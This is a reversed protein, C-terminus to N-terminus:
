VKLLIITSLEFKPDSHIELPWKKCVWAYILGKKIIDVDKHQELDICSSCACYFGPNVAAKYEQWEFVQAVPDSQWGYNGRILSMIQNTKKVIGYSQHTLHFNNSPQPSPFEEGLCALEKFKQRPFAQHLFHARLAVRARTESQGGRPRRSTNGLPAQGHSPLLGYGTNTM